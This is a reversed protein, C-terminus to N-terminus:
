TLLQTPTESKEPKANSTLSHCNGKRSPKPEMTPQWGGLAALHEWGKVPIDCNHLSNKLSDKYRKTQGGQRRTSRALESCFIQKPLCSDEMRMVHGTWRVRVGDSMMILVEVGPMSSHRLVEQNTVIRGPFAWSGASATSTSRTWNRSTDGTAHEPRVAM